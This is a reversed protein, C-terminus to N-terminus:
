WIVQNQAGTPITGGLGGAAAGEAWTMTAEKPGYLRVFPAKTPREALAAFGQERKRGGRSTTPLTLVRFSLRRLIRFVM